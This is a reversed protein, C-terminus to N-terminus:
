FIRAVCGHTGMWCPLLAGLRGSLHVEWAVYTGCVGGLSVHCRACIVCHRQEGFCSSRM